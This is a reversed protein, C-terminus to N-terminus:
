CMSGAFFCFHCSLPKSMNSGVRAQLTLESRFSHLIVNWCSSTMCQNSYCQWGRHKETHFVLWQWLVSSGRRELRALSTAIDIFRVWKGCPIAVTHRVQNTVEGLWICSITFVKQINPCSRCTCYITINLCWLSEDFLYTQIRYVFIWYTWTSWLLDLNCM